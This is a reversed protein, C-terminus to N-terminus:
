FHMQKVCRKFDGKYISEVPNKGTAGRNAEAKLMQSAAIANTGLALIEITEGYKIELAKIITAGIGGGQDDIVCIHKM